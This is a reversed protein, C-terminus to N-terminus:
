NIVKKVQAVVESLQDTTLDVGSPLYLGKKAIDESIPYKEGKFLGIKHFAPQEHMGIFFTRTDVGHDLLKKRFTNRDMGIEDEIIISYMWYVNKAWTEEVPTTIGKIDALGKNYFAAIERKIGCYRDLKDVQASGIAAQINTMRFNFGLHNHLFRPEEFALSKLMRAKEAAEQNDTVIMGGEGTSIIKNSYFSFCAADSLSGIKKGTYEAGHAEAADEFVLLNHRKAIDLVPDMDVPHGYIHVVMIAKTRETVKEEIKTVDINWTRPESDVLVPTAGVYVVALCTAINTFTPLIVEDGEGIDFAALALQLATTGSNTTVGYKVGCYSALKQEFEGIFKGSTGSFSITDFCSIVNKLEEEGASPECVPIM